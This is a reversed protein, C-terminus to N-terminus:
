QIFVVSLCDIHCRLLTYHPPSPPPSSFQGLFLIFSAALFAMGLVLTNGIKFGISGDRDQTAAEVKMFSDFPLPHNTVSLRYSSNDIGATRQLLLANHILNLSLPATHYGQNNFWGTAEVKKNLESGATAFTAGVMVRSNVYHVDVVEEVLDLFYDNITRTAGVADVWYAGSDNLQKQYANWLNRVSPDDGGDPLGILTRSPGYSALDIKLSISEKVDALKLYFHIFSHILSFFFSSSTIKGLKVRENVLPIAVFCVPIVLQGLFLLIHRVSLIYKKKLLALLQQYFLVIGQRRKSYDAADILKEKVDELRLSVEKRKAAEDSKKNIQVLEGVRIFVDEMTTLSAGFSTVGLEQQKRELKEFIAPFTHSEQDPLNYSLESGVVQNVIVDPIYNRIMSTIEDM